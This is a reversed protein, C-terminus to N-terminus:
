QRRPPYTEIWGGRYIHGSWFPYFDSPRLMWHRSRQNTIQYYGDPSKTTPTRNWWASYVHPPGMPPTTYSASTSRPAVSSAKPAKKKPAPVIKPPPIAYYFERPAQQFQQNAQTRSGYYLQHDPVKRLYGYQDRYYGTTCSSLLSSVLCLVSLVIFSTHGACLATFRTRVSLSAKPKM